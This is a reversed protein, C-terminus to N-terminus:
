GTIRWNTGNSKVDVNFAGGGAVTNGINGPFDVSSDTVQVTRGTNAAASPLTAVTYQGPRISGSATLNALNLDALAGSAATNGQGTYIGLVSNSGVPKLDVTYTGDGIRIGNGNGYLQLAYGTSSATLRVHNYQASITGFQVGGSARLDLMTNADIRVGGSFTANGTFANSAANLRPVNASLRADPVTGSALNSANSAYAQTAVPLSDLTLSTTADISEADVAVANISLANLLRYGDLDLDGAMTGGALPLYAAAIEASSLLELVARVAAPTLGPALSGTASIGPIYIAAM